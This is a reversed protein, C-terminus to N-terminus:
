SMFGLPLMEPLRKNFINTQNLGSNGLNKTTINVLMTSARHQRMGGLVCESWTEEQGRIMRYNASAQRAGWQLTLEMPYTEKADGTM